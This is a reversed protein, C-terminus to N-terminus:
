VDEYLGGIITNSVLFGKQTIRASNENIEMFGDQAFKQAKKIFKQSPARGFRSEFEDFRIGDSLRLRLMAYEHATGGIDDFVMQPNTLFKEIDADFYYRKGDIFSHAAPGLGLYEDCNWYKLNHRSQKGKKAFNSIEYQEYGNQQLYQCTLTYFEATQEEGPLNLVEKKSYFPTNNEIKLIYASIHDPQMKIFQELTQKISKQTQNPIGLMLDVSINKFGAKTAIEVTKKVDSFSHRRGLIELESDIASQVGISLRNTGANLLKSFLQELNDAPNAEVTIEADQTLAFSQKTQNILEVLGDGLLTPTGGGFYLTDIPRTIRGGWIKLQKKVAQVYSNTDKNCLSYFDCYGCKSKCFPVHVYIGLPNHM